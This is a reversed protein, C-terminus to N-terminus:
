AAGQGLALELLSGIIIHPSLLPQPIHNPIPILVSMRTTRIARNTHDMLLIPRTSAGPGLALPRGRQLQQVFAESAPLDFGVVVLLASPDEVVM